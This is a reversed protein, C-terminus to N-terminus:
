FTAPANTLGFSMVLFEFHGHHTRFTTKEIDDPHVRVQHYGSRLDFKTFFRSCRLEDLLEEVVPIPFKDKVTRENLAWYDMCFRWMTDQNKVLVPASFASTSSRIIEQKLM